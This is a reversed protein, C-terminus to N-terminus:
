NSNVWHTYTEAMGEIARSPNFFTSLLVARAGSLVRTEKITDDIDSIVSIGYPEILQASGYSSIHGKSKIQEAKIKLINIHKNGTWSQVQDDRVHLEGLFVGNNESKISVGNTKSSPNVPLSNVDFNKWEDFPMSGVAEVRFTQNKKGNALFYKFRHEFMQNSIDNNASKGAVSKTIGIPHNNLM